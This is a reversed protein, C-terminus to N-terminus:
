RDNRQSNMGAFMINVGEQLAIQQVSISFNISTILCYRFQYRSAQTDLDPCPTGNFESIAASDVTVNMNNDAVRCPNAFRTLFDANVPGPAALRQIGMQGESRGVVYYTRKPAGLEFIRQVPRTYQASMGQVLQGLGSDSDPFTLTAEDAAFAGGFSPQVGFIDPM